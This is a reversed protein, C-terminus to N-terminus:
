RSINLQEEEMVTQVIADYTGDKKIERLGEAIAPVLQEKSQHVYLYMDRSALPPELHHIDTIGRDRLVAYGTLLSYLAIDIRNKDLMSFLEAETPTRVVHPFGATNNELIKWGSVLGIYLERISEWGQVSYNKRAFAVFHMTMNPEPVRVFNTYHEEMGAIRNLEADVLGANVDELSKNTQTYVIKAEIGRRRCAEVLIRDLMGTGSSNSLLNNYSTSISLTKESEQASVMLCLSLFLVVAALKKM